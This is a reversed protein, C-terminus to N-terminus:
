APDETREGRTIRGHQFQPRELQVVDKVVTAITHVEDRRAVVGDPIRKSHVVAVVDVVEEVAKVRLAIGQLIVTQHGFSHLSYRWRISCRREEEVEQTGRM